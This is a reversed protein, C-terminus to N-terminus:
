VVRQSAVYGSCFKEVEREAQEKTLDYRTLLNGVLQDGEGDVVELEDSTLLVWNENSCSDFGPGNSSVEDWSM